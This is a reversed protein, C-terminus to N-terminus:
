LCTLLLNGRGVFSGSASHTENTDSNYVAVLQGSASYLEQKSGSHYIVARLSGDRNFIEEKM